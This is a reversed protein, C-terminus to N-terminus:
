PTPNKKAAFEALTEHGGLFRVILMCIIIIVIIKLLPIIINKEYPKLAARLKQFGEKIKLKM